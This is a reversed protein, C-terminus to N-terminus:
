AGAQQRLLVSRRLSSADNMLRSDKAQTAYTLAISALAAASELHGQDLAVTGAIWAAQCQEEETISEGREVRRFISECLNAAHGFRGEIAALFAEGLTQHIRDEPTDLLLASEELATRAEAPRHVHCFLWALNQLGACLLSPLGDRRFCENAQRYAAAAGDLERRDRLTLALYYYAKGEGMSLEPYKASLEQLFAQFQELAVHTDGIWRTVMGLHFRIQGLLKLPDSPSWSALAKEALHRAKFFDRRGYAAHSGMLLLRASPPGEQGLREFEQWAKDWQRTEILGILGPLGSLQNNEM